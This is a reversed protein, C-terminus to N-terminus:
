AAGLVLALAALLGFSCVVAALALGIVAARTKM